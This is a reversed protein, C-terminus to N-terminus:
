AFWFYIQPHERFKLNTQSPHNSTTKVADLVFNRNVIEFKKAVSFRIEVLHHHWNRCDRAISLLHYNCVLTSSTTGAISGFTSKQQRRLFYNISLKLPSSFTAFGLITINDIFFTTFYHVCFWATLIFNLPVPQTVLGCLLSLMIYYTSWIM